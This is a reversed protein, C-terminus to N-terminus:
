LQVDSPGCDAPAFNLKRGEEEPDAITSSGAVYNFGPPMTEVVAGLVGYDMATITVRINGGETVPAPSIMRSARPGETVPAAEVMVDTSGGTVRTEGDQDQPIDEITGSFEYTDAMDPATVTYTFTFPSPELVVAFTIIQPDHQDPVVQAAPLSSSQYEFGEPLTEVVRAGISGYDRAVITVTLEGGAPVSTPSFSRSASHGDAGVLGPIWLGAAGLAVGVM